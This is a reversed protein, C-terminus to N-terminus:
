IKFMLLRAVLSDLIVLSGLVSVFDLLILM